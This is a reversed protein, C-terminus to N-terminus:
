KKPKREIFFIHNPIYYGIKFGFFYNSNTTTPIYTFISLSGLFSLSLELNVYDITGQRINFLPEPRFYYNPGWWTLGGIQPYISIYHENMFFNYSIGMEYITNFGDGHLGHKGTIGLIMKSVDLGNRYTQFDTAGIYNIGSPLLRFYEFSDANNSKDSQGLVVHNFLVLFLSMVYLAKISKVM